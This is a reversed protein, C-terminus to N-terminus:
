FRNTLDVVRNQELADQGALTIEFARYADELTPNGNSRGEIM